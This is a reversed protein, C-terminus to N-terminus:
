SKRGSPTRVVERTDTQTFEIGDLHKALDEKIYYRKGYKACLEIARAGFRRWDIQAEREKDHNLKGIKYLDVWEWTNEIIQLSAKPDLVPELSV